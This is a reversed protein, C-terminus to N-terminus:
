AVSVTHLSVQVCDEERAVVGLSEPSGTTAAEVIGLALGLRPVTRWPLISLDGLGGPSCTGADLGGGPSRVRGGTVWADDALGAGSTPLGTQHWSAALVKELQKVRTSKGM